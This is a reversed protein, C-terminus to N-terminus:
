LLSAIGFLHKSSHAELLDEVVEADDSGIDSYTGQVERASATTADVPKGVASVAVQSKNVARIGILASLGFTEKRHGGAVTSKIELAPEDSATSQDIDSPTVAHKEDVGVLSVPVIPAEHVVVTPRGDVVVVTGQGMSKCGNAATSGSTGGFPRYVVGPRVGIPRHVPMGRGNKWLVPGGSGGHAVASRHLHAGDSGTSMVSVGRRREAAARMREMLAGRGVHSGGFASAAPSGPVIISESTEVLLARPFPDRMSVAMGLITERAAAAAAVVVVPAAGIAGDEGDDDSDMDEYEGCDFPRHHPRPHALTVTAVLRSPLYPSPKPAAEPAPSNRASAFRSGNRLPPPTNVSRSSFPLSPESDFRRPASARRKPRQVREVAAPKPPRVSSSRRAPMPQVTLHHAADTVTFSPELSPTPTASLEDPEQTGLNSRTSPKRKAKKGFARSSYKRKPAKDATVTTIVNVQAPISLVPTAPRYDAEGTAHVINTSTIPEDKPEMKAPPTVEAQATIHMIAIAASHAAAANDASTSPENDHVIVAIPRGTNRSAAARRKSSRKQEGDIDAAPHSIDSMILHVPTTAVAEGTALAPTAARLEEMSASSESSSKRKSRPQRDTAPAKVGSTITPLQPATARVPSDFASEDPTTERPPHGLKLVVRRKLRTCIEVVPAPAPEDAEVPEPAFEHARDGFKIAVMREDVRAVAPPEATATVPSTESRRSRARSRTTRTPSEVATVDSGAEVETTATVPLEDVTPATAAPLPTATEQRNSPHMKSRKITRGTHVEEKAEEKSGKPEVTEATLCAKSGTTDKQRSPEALTPTDGDLVITMIDDDDRSKKTPSAARTTAQSEVQSELAANKALRGSRRGATPLTPTAPDAPTAPRQKKSKVTEAAAAIAPGPTARRDSQVEEDDSPEPQARKGRPRRAKDTLM